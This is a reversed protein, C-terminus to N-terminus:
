QNDPFRYDWKPVFIEFCAGEGYTGTERITIRTISLIERVLFLDMGMQKGYGREFIEEKQDDPIGPGNDRFFLLLGDKAITYGITVETANKAHILVNKALALFVRELLPSAFIELDDLPVVRRIHSFDLHSIGMVFSQHVNQWEPPSFGLDQYQKAFDLSYEIKRISEVEMNHYEEARQEDPFMKELALYGNLTFVANRIDNFTVQNLLTLKRTVQQFAADVRKGATIDRGVFQYEQIVGTQDFIGRMTWSIFYDLGDYTFEMEGSGSPSKFTLSKFFDDLTEKSVAPQFVDYISIPESLHKLNKANYRFAPNMFTITGDLGFRCIMESQDELISKYLLRSQSIQGLMRNIAISLQTLEDNGPIETIRVTDNGTGIKRVDNTIISIRFLIMRDILLIGLSGFVLIAILIILMFSFLTSIGSQYITRPESIKIGFTDPTVNLENQQTYGQITQSNETLIVAPNGLPLMDQVSALHPEASLAAPSIFSVSVGTTKSIAGVRDEDLNQGMIMIGKDPGEGNSKLVPRVAIAVPQGNVFLIGKTSSDANPSNFTYLPYDRTITDLLLPSVLELEGTTKNYARAYVLSKSHNFLLIYDVDLTKFTAAQLNDGIYGSKSAEVFNYTDDWLAWDALNSDLNELVSEIAFDVRQLDQQVETKEITEYSKQLVSTSYVMFGALIIILGLGFIVLTKTRLDM